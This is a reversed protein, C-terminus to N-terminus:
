RCSSAPVAVSAHKKGDNYCGNHWAGDYTGNISTVYKGAGNPKGDRWEGDYRDGNPLTLTGHGAMIGDRFDGDYRTGDVGAVVGRGNPKGDKILGDYRDGLRGNEFWQLVGQGQAVGDRCTGTWTVTENPQPALNWIKCGTNADTSWGSTQARAAGGTAVLLVVLAAMVPMRM